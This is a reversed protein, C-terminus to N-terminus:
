TLQAKKTLIAPKYGVDHGLGLLITPDHDM